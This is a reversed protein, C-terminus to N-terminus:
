NWNAHTLRDLSVLTDSRNPDGDFNPHVVIVKKTWQNVRELQRQKAKSNLVKAYMFSLLLLAAVFAMALVSLIYTLHSQKEPIKTVSTDALTEVVELYASASTSGLSNAAMCTYWGQDEFTVNEIRLIEANEEDRQM